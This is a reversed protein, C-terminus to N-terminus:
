RFWADARATAIEDLRRRLARDSAAERLTDLRDGVYAAQEALDSADTPDTGELAARWVDPDYVRKWSPHGLEISWLSRDRTLLVHLDDADLTILQDGFSESPPQADVTFGAQELRAILAAVPDM